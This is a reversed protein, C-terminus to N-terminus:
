AKMDWDTTLFSSLENYVPTRWKKTEWLNLWVFYYTHGNVLGENRKERELKRVPCPASPRPVLNTGIASYRDEIM